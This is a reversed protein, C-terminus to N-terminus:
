QAYFRWRLDLWVLLCAFLSEVTVVDFRSIALDAMLQSTATSLLTTLIIVVVLTLYAYGRPQTRNGLLRIQFIGHGGRLNWSIIADALVWSVLITFLFQWAPYWILGVLLLFALTVFASFLTNRALEELTVTRNAM